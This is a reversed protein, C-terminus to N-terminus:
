RIGFLSLISRWLSQFFGLQPAPTAQPPVYQPIVSPQVNTTPPNVVDGTLPAFPINPPLIVSPSNADLNTFSGAGGGVTASWEKSWPGPMCDNVGRVVFYYTTGSSLHDVTYNDNNGVDPLGYIYNGSALGFAITYKSAKDTKLWNLRVSNANKATPLLSHNPEYLVVQDPKENSCVPPNTSSGAFTPGGYGFVLRSNGPILVVALAAIGLISVKLLTKKM